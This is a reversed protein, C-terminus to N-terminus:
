QPRVSAISASKDGASYLDITDARISLSQLQVSRGLFLAQKATGMKLLQQKKIKANFRGRDWPFCAEAEQAGMHVSDARLGILGLIVVVPLLAGVVWIAKKM